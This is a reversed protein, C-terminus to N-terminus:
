RDRVISGHQVLRSVDGHHEDDVDHRGCCQALVDALGTEGLDLVLEVRQASPDQGLVSAAEHLVLAVTEHSHKGVADPARAAPTAIRCAVAVMLRRRPASSRRRSRRPALAPSAATMLPSRDPITGTSAVRSSALRRLRSTSRNRGPALGQRCDLLRVAEDVGLLQLELTQAIRHLRPPDAPPRSSSRAARDALAM